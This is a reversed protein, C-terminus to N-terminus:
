WWTPCAPRSGGSRGAPASCRRSRTPSTPEAPDAGIAAVEDLHERMAAALAPPFHEPRIRDFPPLGFPTDDWPLLLPNSDSM